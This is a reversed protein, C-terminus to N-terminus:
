SSVRSVYVEWRVVHLSCPGQNRYRVYGLTRSPVRLQQISLGVM